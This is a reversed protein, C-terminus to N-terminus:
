CNEVFISINDYWKEPSNSSKILDNMKLILNLWNKCIQEKKTNSNTIKSFISYFQSFSLPIIKIKESNDYMDLIIDKGKSCSYFENLTATNIEPALFLGITDKGKAKYFSHVAVHRPVPESEMRWQTKGTSKTVEVVLDLSPYIIQMDPMNGAATFMSNFEVDIHFNRTESPHPQFADIFLLTKWVISEIETPIVSKYNTGTLMELENKVEPLKLTEAYIIEKQDDLLNRLMVCEIFLPTSSDTNELNISSDCQLQLLESKYEKIKTNTYDEDDLLLKPKTTDWLYETYLSPGDKTHTDIIPPLNELANKVLEVFQPSIALRVQSKGIKKDQIMGTMRLYRKTLDPYDKLITAKKVTLYYQVFILEIEESEMEDKLTKIIGSKCIRAKKTNPGKGLAVIPNLREILDKENQLWKIKYHHIVEKLLFIRNQYDDRFHEILRETLIKDKLIEISGPKRNERYHKIIKIIEDLNEDRMLHCLSIEFSSLGNLKLLLKFLIVAPRLKVGNKIESKHNPYQFKLLQRFWILGELEPYKILLEGSPKIKMKDQGYASIFGLDDLPSLWCRANKQIYSKSPMSIENEKIISYIPFDKPNKPDYEEGSSTSTLLKNFFEEQLKYNGSFSVKGDYYKNLIRLAPLLRDPNRVTTNGITWVSATRQM